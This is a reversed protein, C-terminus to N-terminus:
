DGCFAVFFLRFAYGSGAQIVNSQDDFFPTM